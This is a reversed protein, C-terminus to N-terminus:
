GITVTRAGSTIKSTDRDVPDNCTRVLDDLRAAPRGGITVTKSGHSVRGQNAPPKQFSSGPPTPVHKPKNTAVSDVTAAAAGEILVSGVTGSTITGSFPHPLPVPFTVLFPIIVVIVVHVDIGTVQDGLRAAPQGMGSGM